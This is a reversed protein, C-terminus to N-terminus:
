SWKGVAEILWAICASPKIMKMMKLVKLQVTPPHLSYFYNQSNKELEIERPCNLNGLKYAKLSEKISTKWIVRSENKRQREKPRRKLIIKRFREEKM